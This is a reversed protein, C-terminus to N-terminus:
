NKKKFDGRKWAQIFDLWAAPNLINMPPVQGAYYAKNAQQRLQYNVAERGDAPLSNLLARRQAENNNKRVTEYLDDQVPINVFDREFQERTPRPKLITAPLYTTDSILLQIVSYQNGPLDAPIHITKDKYGISSFRIHDGKLVAISFVGDSNSITGRGRGEVIVSAAPIGKLSDATMVVGYLQVVSDRYPNAQSYGKHFTFLTAIILFYRLFKMM